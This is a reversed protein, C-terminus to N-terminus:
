LTLLGAEKAQRLMERVQAGSQYSGTTIFRDLQRKLKATPDSDVQHQKIAIAAAANEIAQDVAKEDKPSFATGTSLNYMTTPGLPQSGTVRPVTLVAAPRINTVQSGLYCEDALADHYDGDDDPGIFVRNKEGSIIDAILFTGPPVLYTDAM